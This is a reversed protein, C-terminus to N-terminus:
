YRTVYEIDPSVVIDGSMIGSVTDELLRCAHLNNSSQERTYRSVCYAYAYLLEQFGDTGTPVSIGASDYLSIIKDKTLMGRTM